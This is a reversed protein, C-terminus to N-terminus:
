GRAKGDFDSSELMYWHMCCSMRRRENEAVYGAQWQVGIEETRRSRGRM